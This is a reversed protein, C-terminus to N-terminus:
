IVISNKGTLRKTKLNRLAIVKDYDVVLPSIFLCEQLNGDQGLLLPLESPQTKYGDIVKKGGVYVDVNTQQVDLGYCDKSTDM